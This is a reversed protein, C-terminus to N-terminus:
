DKLYRAHCKSCEEYLNDSAVSLAEIDKRDVAKQAAIAAARHSQALKRWADAKVAYKPTLMLDASEVLLDTQRRLENWAASNTPPEAAAKFVADSGPITLVLMVDKVTNVPPRAASPAPAQQAAVTAAFLVACLLTATHQRTM